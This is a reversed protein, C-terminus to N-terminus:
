CCLSAENLPEHSKKMEQILNGQQAQCSSYLSDLLRRARSLGLINNSPMTFAHAAMLSLQFLQAKTVALRERVGMNSSWVVMVDAATGGM